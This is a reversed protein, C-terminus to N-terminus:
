LTTDVRYEVRCEGSGDPGLRRLWTDWRGDGNMDLWREPFIAACDTIPDGGEFPESWPFLVRERERLTGEFIHIRTVTGFVRRSVHTFQGARSVSFGFMWWAAALVVLAMGVTRWASRGHSLTIMARGGDAWVRQEAAACSQEVVGNSLALRDAHDGG